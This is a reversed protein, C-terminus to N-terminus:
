SKINRAREFALAFATEPTSAKTITRAKLPCPSNIQYRNPSHVGTKLPIGKRVVRLQRAAKRSAEFDRQRRYATYSIVTAVGDRAVSISQGTYTGDGEDRFLHPAGEQLECCNTWLDLEEGNVRARFKAYKAFSHVELRSVLLPEFYHAASIIPNHATQPAAFSSPRSKTFKDTCPHKPWDGGLADFFVKGGFPSQYFYVRQNCVPCRANPTTYAHLSRFNFHVAPSVSAQQSRYGPGGLHGDGGWGCRCNIPHNWANCM